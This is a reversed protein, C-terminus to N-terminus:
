APPRPEYREVSRQRAAELTDADVALVNAAHPALDARLGRRGREISDWSAASLGLEAAMSTKTLGRRLRLDALTATALTASTLELPDVELAQALATVTDVSPVTRGKEYAILQPRDISTVAGLRDHSLGRAERLRKLADPDFSTVPEISRQRPM